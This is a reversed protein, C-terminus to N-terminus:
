MAPIMMPADTHDEVGKVGPVKEAAICMARAQELSTVAGWLHVTGGNVIVNEAAVAWRHGGLERIVAERLTQDPTLTIVGADKPVSALAKVLNARSVIGLLEGDYLVPVRKIRHRELLDAIESVPTTEKVTIVRPTMVDKVLRANEKIYTAALNQTSAFFELWWSRRRAQTGIEARHILDGETLMGLLRGEDDVVPAGSIHNDAFLRAADRVTTGPGVTIVKRTMVDVARM